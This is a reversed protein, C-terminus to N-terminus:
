AAFDFDRVRAQCDVYPIGVHHRQLEGVSMEPAAYPLSVPAGLCDPFIQNVVDTMRACSTHYLLAGSSDPIIVVHGCKAQICDVAAIERADDLFLINKRLVACHGGRYKCEAAFEVSNDVFRSVHAEPSHTNATRRLQLSRNRRRGNNQMDSM